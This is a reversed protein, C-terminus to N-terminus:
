EDRGQNTPENTLERQGTGANTWRAVAARLIGNHAELLKDADDPSAGLATLVAQKVAGGSLALASMAASQDVDAITAVIAAARVKLKANDAKLGVMMGDHVQGLRIAALTSLLNLAVKQATGAGMRTSGAILEPPTPLCIAVDALDFISAGKNCAIAIVKAGQARATRALAMPYPTSGSATVAVVLDGSGLRDAQAARVGEGADDETDGPMHADTPVGGAMRLVIREPAIGYTGPLEMGDANAMLASSGAGAYCIRGSAGLVDAMIRAGAAIDALASQVAMLSELQGALLLSLIHDDPRADLGRAAPHLTETQRLAM